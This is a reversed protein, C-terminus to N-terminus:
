ESIEDENDRWRNINRIAFDLAFDSDDYLEQVTEIVKFLKTLARYPLKHKALEKAEPLATYKRLVYMESPTYQPQAILVVNEELSTGHNERLFEIIVSMQQNSFSPDAYYTVDLGNLLGVFINNLQYADYKPDAYKTVDVDCGIARHLVELQMENFESEHHKIFMSNKISLNNQLKMSSRRDDDIRM